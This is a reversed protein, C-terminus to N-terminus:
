RISKIMLDDSAESSVLPKIKIMDEFVLTALEFTKCRNSLDDLFRNFFINQSPHNCNSDLRNIRNYYKVLEKLEKLYEREREDIRKKYIEIDEVSMDKSVLCDKYDLLALKSCMLKETIM